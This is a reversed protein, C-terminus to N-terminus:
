RKHVRGAGGYLCCSWWVMVHVMMGVVYFNCWVVILRHCVMVIMIVFAWMRCCCTVVFHCCHMIFFHHPCPLLAHCLCALLACLPCSLLACRCAWVVLVVLHCVAVLSLVGEEEGEPGWWERGERLGGRGDTGVVGDGRM